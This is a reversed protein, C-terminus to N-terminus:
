WVIAAPNDFNKSDKQAWVYYTVGTDLWFTVKGDSNTQLTGAIIVLGDPDSSIWVDADAVPTLGVGVALTISGEDAGPGRLVSDLDSDEIRNEPYVTIIYSDNVMYGDAHTFLLQYDGAAPFTMLYIHAGLGTHTMDLYAIDDEWSNGNWWKNTSLRKISIRAGVKYDGTVRNLSMMPISTEVGVIIDQM